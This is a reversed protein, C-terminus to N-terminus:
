QENYPPSLPPFHPTTTNHKFFFPFLYIYRCLFCVFITVLEFVADNPDDPDIEKLTCSQHM